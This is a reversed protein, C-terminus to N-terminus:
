FLSRITRLSSTGECLSPLADNRDDSDIGSRLCLRKIYVFFYGTQRPHGEQIFRLSRRDIRYLNWDLCFTAMFVYFNIGVMLGSPM